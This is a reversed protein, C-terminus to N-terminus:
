KKKPLADAVKLRGLKKGGIVIPVTENSKHVVRNRYRPQDGNGPDTHVEIQRDVLNVIWYERIGARAYIRFKQTRDFELSTDAIEIVLVVENPGPHREAFDHISGTVVTLDPEPESDGLTIPEQERVLYETPFISRIIQQLLDKTLSHRPKKPMKTVVEGEILEVPDNETLIGADIIAHYQDVTWRWPPEVEIRRKTMVVTM